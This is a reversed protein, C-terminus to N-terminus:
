AFRARSKGRDALFERVIEVAHRGADEDSDEEVFDEDSSCAGEEDSDKYVVKRGGYPKSVPSNSAELLMIDDEDLELEEKSLKVRKSPSKAVPADDIFRRDEETEEEIGDECEDGSDSGSLAADEDIFTRKRPPM